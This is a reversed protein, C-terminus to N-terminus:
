SRGNRPVLLRKNATDEGIALGNFCIDLPTWSAVPPEVPEDGYDIHLLPASNISGDHSVAMRRGTGAIVFAISKDKKWEPNDIIEQILAALNPTRQDPGDVPFHCREFRM